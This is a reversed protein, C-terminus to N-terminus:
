CERDELQSTIEEARRQTEKRYQEIVEAEADEAVAIIAEASALMSEEVVERIQTRGENARICTDHDENVAYAIGGIGVALSLAVSGAVMVLARRSAKGALVENSREVAGRLLRLEELLDENTTM